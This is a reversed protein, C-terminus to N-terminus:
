VLVIYMEDSSDCYIKPKFKPWAYMYCAQYKWCYTSSPFPLKCHHFDSTPAMWFSAFLVPPIYLILYRRVEDLLERKKHLAAIVGDHITLLLHDESVKEYFNCRKFMDRVAASFYSPAFNYLYGSSFLYPKWLIWMINCMGKIQCHQNHCLLDRM